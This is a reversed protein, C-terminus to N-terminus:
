KRPCEGLCMGGLGAGLDESEGESVNGESKRESVNRGSREKPGKQGKGLCM